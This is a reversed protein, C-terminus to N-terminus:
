NGVLDFLDNVSAMKAEKINDLELAEKMARVSSRLLMNAYIVIDFPHDDPLNYTTPVAVLPVNPYKERFKTAFEMIETCDVKEKSHIMIGDVGANIYADARVLAEFVSKKAILSEIRAMIKINKAVKKGAMIKLSFVDVDELIQTADDLLSNKKPFVKDEIMIIDVKANELQRVWFPFHEISGGTDWDVIIPKSSVNRIERITNLRSDPSLLENDPMGKSASETLSSVWIANYKDSQDVLLASIGNHAECATLKDM